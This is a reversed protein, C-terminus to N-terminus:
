LISHFRLLEMSCSISPEDSRYHSICDELNSCVLLLCAQHSLVSQRAHPSGALSIAYKSIQDGEQRIQFSMRNANKIYAYIILFLELSFM